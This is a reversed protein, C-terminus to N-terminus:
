FAHLRKADSDFRLIKWFTEKLVVREETTFFDSNSAIKENLDSFSREIDTAFSM